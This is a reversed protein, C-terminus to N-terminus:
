NSKKYEVGNIIVTEEDIKQVTSSENYYDNINDLRVNHTRYGDNFTNENMYNNGDVRYEAGDNGYGSNTYVDRTNRGFFRGVYEMSCSYQRRINEVIERDNYSLQNESAIGGINIDNGCYKVSILEGIRYKNYSYGIVEQFRKISKDEMIVAVDAKLQPNGNSYMNTELIDIVVGYTLKGRISTKANVLLKKLGIIIMIIGILWFLGLFLKPWLMENFENQSVIQGNVKITGGPMYFSLTVIAVIVTWMIGFILEFMKNDGNRIINFKNQWM